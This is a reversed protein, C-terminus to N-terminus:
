TAKSLLRWRSSASDYWITASGHPLIALTAANPLFFRNAATSSGSDHALSVNDITGINVITLVRGSVGGVIGTFTSGTGAPTARVVNATSLGTTTYDNNNGIGLTAPSIIGTLGWVGNIDGDSLYQAWQGVLNKWWNEYQAVTPDEPNHGEALVGSPPQVKTATSAWPQTSAAFNTNTAFTPVTTPKVSM